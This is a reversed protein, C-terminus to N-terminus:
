DTPGLKVDGVEIAAKLADLGLNIEEFMERYRKLEQM